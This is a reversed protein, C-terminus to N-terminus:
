YHVQSGTTTKEAELVELGELINSHVGIREQRPTQIKKVSEEGTYEQYFVMRIHGQIQTKIFSISHNQTHM